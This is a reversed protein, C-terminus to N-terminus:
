LAVAVSKTYLLSINSENLLVGSSFLNISATRAVFYCFLEFYDSFICQEVLPPYIATGAPTVVINIKLKPTTNYCSLTNLVSHNLSTKEDPTISNFQYDYIWAYYTDKWNFNSDLNSVLIKLLSNVQQTSHSNLTNM